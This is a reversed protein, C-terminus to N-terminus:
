VHARGIEGISLVRFNDKVGENKMCGEFGFDSTFDRAFHTFKIKELHGKILPSSDKVEIHKLYDEHIGFLLRKNKKDFSVEYWCPIDERILIKFDM